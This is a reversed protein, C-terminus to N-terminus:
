IKRIRRVPTAAIMAALSNPGPPSIITEDTGVKMMSEAMGKRLEEAIAKSEKELIKMSEAMGKGFEEAWKAVGAWRYGGEPGKELHKEKVLRSLTTAVTAASAIYGAIDIGEMVESAAVYGDAAKVIELIVETITQDETGRTGLLSRLTKITQRLKARKRELLELAKDVGRLETIAQEMAKLYTADM